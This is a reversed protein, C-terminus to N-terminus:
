KEKKRGGEPRVMLSGLFFFCSFFYLDEGPASAKKNTSYAAIIICYIPFFVFFFLVGRRSVSIQQLVSVMKANDCITGSNTTHRQMPQGTGSAADSDEGVELVRAAVKLKGTGM